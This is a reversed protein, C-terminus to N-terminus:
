ENDVGRLIDLLDSLYNDLVMVDDISEFENKDLDEIYEKANEIIDKLQKNRTMLKNNIDDYMILTKIVEDKNNDYMYNYAYERMEKYNM